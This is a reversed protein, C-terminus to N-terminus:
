IYIRLLNVKYSRSSRTVFVPWSTRVSVCWTVDLLATYNGISDILYHWVEIITLVM